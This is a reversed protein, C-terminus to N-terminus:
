KIYDMYGGNMQTYDPHIGTKRKFLIASSEAKEKHSFQPNKSMAETSQYLLM